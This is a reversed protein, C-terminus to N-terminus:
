LDRRQLAAIAAGVTIVTMALFVCSAKWVIDPPGLMDLKYHNPILYNFSTSGLIGMVLLGGVGLFLASFPRKVLSSALLSWGLYGVSVVWTLLVMAFTAQLWAALPGQFATMGTGLIALYGVVLLLLLLAAHALFKGMVISARRARPLLFRISGSEVEAAISDYTLMVVFFPFFIVAVLYMFSLLLPTQIRYEVVRARKEGLLKHLMNKMKAKDNKELGIQGFATLMKTGKNKSVRIAATTSLVTALLVIGFTLLARKSRLAIRLEQFFISHIERIM